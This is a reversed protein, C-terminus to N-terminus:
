TCNQYFHFLCTCCTCLQGPLFSFSGSFHHYALFLFQWSLLLRADFHHDALKQSSPHQRSSAVSQGLSHRAIMLGRWDHFRDWCPLTRRPSDFMYVYLLPLILSELLWKLSSESCLQKFVGDHDDEQGYHNDEHGDHDDEHGDHVEQVERGHDPDLHCPLLEELTWPAARTSRTCPRHSLTSPLQETHFVM